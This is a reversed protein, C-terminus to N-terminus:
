PRVPVIRLCGDVDRYLRETQYILSLMAVLRSIQIVVDILAARLYVQNM